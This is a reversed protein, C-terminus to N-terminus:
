VGGIIFCRSFGQTKLAATVTPPRASAGANYQIGKWKVRPQLRAVWATPNQFIMWPSSGLLEGKKRRRRPGTTTTTSPGTKVRWEITRGFSLFLSPPLPLSLTVGICRRGEGVCARGPFLCMTREKGKVKRCCSAVCLRVERASSCFCLFLCSLSM